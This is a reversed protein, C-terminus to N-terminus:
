QMPEVYILFEWDSQEKYFACNDEATTSAYIIKEDEYDGEYKVVLWNTRNLRLRELKDTNSFANKCIQQVEFSMKVEVLEVLGGSFSDRKLFSPFQLIHYIERAANKEPNISFSLGMDDKLFSLQQDYEPNRVRAVTSKCGLKKAMFCCLMNIEDSSTAAILLDSESVNAARQVDLSAGNGNLTMIDLKELENQLRKPNSDIITIDHNEKSLQEALSSGVKGDGVIVIKM